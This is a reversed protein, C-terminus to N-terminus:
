QGRLGKLVRVYANASVLFVGTGFAAWQWLGYLVLNLDTLYIAVFTAIVSLVGATFRPWKQAPWPIFWQKLLETALAVVVGSAVLSGFFTVFPLLLERTLSLDM